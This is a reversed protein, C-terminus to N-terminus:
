QENILGIHNVNDEPYVPAVGPSSSQYRIPVHLSLSTTTTRQLDPDRLQVSKQGCPARHEVTRMTTLQLLRDRPPTWLHFTFLRKRVHRTPKCLGVGRNLSCLEHTSYIHIGMQGCLERKVINSLCFAVFILKLFIFVAAM